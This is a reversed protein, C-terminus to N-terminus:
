LTPRDRVCGLEMGGQGTGEGVLRLAGMEPVRALPSSRSLEVLVLAPAFIALKTLFTLGFYWLNGDQPQLPLSFASTHSVSLPCGGWRCSSRFELRLGSPGLGLHCNETGGHVPCWGWMVAMMPEMSERMRKLWWHGVESVADETVEESEGRRPIGLVLRSTCALQFESGPLLLSLAGGALEGELPCRSSHPAALGGDKVSCDKFQHRPCMGDLPDTEGGSHAREWQM